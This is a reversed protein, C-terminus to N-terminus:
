LAERLLTLRISASIWASAAAGALSRDRRLDAARELLRALLDAISRLGVQDLRSAADSARDSWGPSLRALGIHCAEELLTSAQEAAAALPDISPEPPPAPLALGLPRPPELDPVIVRDTVLAAPEILLGHPGRRIAGSVFKVRPEETLARAIADIAGPTVSAHRRVLRISGGLPTELNACLEQEGPRYFLSRVGAVEVARVGEALVRPRLMRPALARLSREFVAPDRVLLSPPLVSFDGEHPTVSTRTTPSLNNGRAPLEAERNALRKLSRSVMQGAALSGLSIKGAIRRDALDPGAEPPAPEAFSFRRRFVLVVGSGPDALYVEVDRDRSDAFVRAGLSVLRVKELLTEGAEDAGLIFRASLEGPREAARARAALETILSAATGASYRASRDRYAELSLELDTLISAPWLLSAAALESRAVAFRPALHQASAVGEILIDCALDLASKLPRTDVAAIPGRRLEITKPALAGGAERFAWAALAIHECREALACDCRAYALDRPVNFRVACTPLRAADVEGAGAPRIEIVVGARAADEARAMARRGLAQELEEDTIAAPSWPAQPPEFSARPPDDTLVSPPSEAPPSEAPAASRGVFSPYALAVAVRHRCVIVAGCSCPTERLSVGPVLKAIVGDKFTGTVVGAADEALAPGEGAAIERQARKVLGLNALSAISEPSLALLDPRSV